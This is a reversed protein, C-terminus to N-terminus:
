EKLERSAAELVAEGYAIKGSMFGQCGYFPHKLRTYILFEKEGDKNIRVPAVVASIKAQINITTKDTDMRNAFEKGVSTLSYEKGLKEIYEFRILQDLHFDFQNNEIDKDPKLDTFKVSKVFLLKKLIQLQIPHPQKM